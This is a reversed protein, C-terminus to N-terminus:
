EECIMLKETYGIAKELSAVVYDIEEYSIILPPEIRIVRPNNLTYAVLIKQDLLQSMVVGGASEEVLDLGMLLGKGRVERVVKPYIRPLDQLQELFYSGKESTEQVLGSEIIEDLSALAATCALPNGGFTSTHLFPERILVDWVHPRVILAGIPMIGGGLAKALTLIDPVVEEEQCSFMYGTRGLGTQVEDIILLINYKDCISRVGMLYGPPPINVGGEGQIPEVIVAAIQNAQNQELLRELAELDGFPAFHIHPLLPESSQRFAERGTVSLSGLTKGHFSNYTSIIGPKGTALRALKLAGEVAETGSNCFFSYQLDGPTVQALKEALLGTAEDCILKTSLSMKDLQKKVAAVVRPHSHGLSFAGYGGLCDLYTEGKIDSVYCGRGELAVTELGMMRMLRAMSPNIYREYRDLTQAIYDTQEEIINLSM